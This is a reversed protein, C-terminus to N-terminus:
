EGFVVPNVRRGDPAIRRMSTVSDFFTDWYWSPVHKVADLRFGDVGQVDMMWQVWRMTYGTANEPAPDGGGPNAVNFRGLSLTSTPENRSPVDCPAAYSGTTLGGAYSMGPNTVTDAGLSADPYFRANSPDPKNFYTGGPINRPDGAATPQRIFQNNSSQNIDVLAVLDGTLLCYRASGPSESQYYGASTGAHFDGWNDTAVKDRLPSPPNMWFGPFGGDAMFGAGSQRFTNHNLVADIYVEIGARKYEQVMTSFYAETGYATPATPTGLNFRDFVDYGVSTSAQNASGPWVYARSPPPLWVSGYGAVFVDGMRREMVSWPCEFWQLTPAPTDDGASATTCTAAVGALLCLHAARLSLALRPSSPSAATRTKM